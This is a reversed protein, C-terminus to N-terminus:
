QLMFFNGTDATKQYIELRPYFGLHGGPKRSFTSFRKQFRATVCCFGLPSGDVGGGETSHPNLKGLVSSIQSEFLLYSQCRLKITSQSDQRENYLKANLKRLVSM